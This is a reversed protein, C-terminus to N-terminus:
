TIYKFLLPTSRVFHFYFSATRCLSVLTMPASFTFYFPNLSCLISSFDCNYVIEQSYNPLVIIRVVILKNKCLIAKTVKEVQEKNEIGLARVQSSNKTQGLLM